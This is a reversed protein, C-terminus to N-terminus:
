VEARKEPQWDSGQLIKRCHQKLRNKIMVGDIKVILWRDNEECRRETTRFLKQPESPETHQLDRYIGTIKVGQSGFPM